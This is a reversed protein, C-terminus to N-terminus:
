STGHELGASCKNYTKEFLNHKSWTNKIATVDVSCSNISLGKYAHKKAYYDSVRNGTVQTLFNRQM